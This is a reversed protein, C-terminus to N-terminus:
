SATRTRRTPILMDLVNYGFLKSADGQLAPGDETDIAAALFYFYSLM